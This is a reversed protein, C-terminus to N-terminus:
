SWRHSPHSLGHATDDLVTTELWPHTEKEGPSLPCHRCFKKTTVAPNHPTSHKWCGRKIFFPGRGWSHVAGFILFQNLVLSFFLPSFLAGGGPVCAYLQWEFSKM